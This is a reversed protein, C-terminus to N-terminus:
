ACHLKGFGDLNYLFLQFGFIKIPHESPNELLYWRRVERTMAADAVNAAGAATPDLLSLWGSDSVRGDARM